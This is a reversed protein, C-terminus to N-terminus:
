HSALVAPLPHKKLGSAPIVERRNRFTIWAGRKLTQKGTTLDQKYDALGPETGSATIAYQTTYGDPAATDETITYTAGYPLTLSLADGNKLEATFVKMSDDAQIWGSPTEALAKTLNLTFKFKKNKDGMNGDVCKRLTLTFSKAHNIFTVRSATNGEVMHGNDDDKKTMNPATGIWHEYTEDSAAHEYSDPLDTEEVTYKTGSPLNPISVTQGAELM